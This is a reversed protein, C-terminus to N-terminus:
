GEPSTDLLRDWAPHKLAGRTDPGSKFHSNGIMQNHSELITDYYEGLVGVSTLNDETPMRCGKVAHNIGRRRAMAGRGGVGWRDSTGTGWPTSNCAAGQNMANKSSM